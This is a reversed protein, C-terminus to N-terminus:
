FQFLMMILAYIYLKDSSVVINWYKPYVKNKLYAIEIYIM